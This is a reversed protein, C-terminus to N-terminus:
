DDTPPLARAVDDARTNKCKGEWGGSRAHQLLLRRFDGPGTIHHLVLTGHVRCAHAHM